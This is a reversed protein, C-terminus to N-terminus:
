KTPPKGFPTRKLKGKCTTCTSQAVATEIYQEEITFCYIDRTETFNCKPCTSTMTRGTKKLNEM